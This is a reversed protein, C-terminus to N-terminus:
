RAHAGCTTGRRAATAPRAAGPRTGSFPDLHRAVDLVFELGPPRIPSRPVARSILRTATLPMPTTEGRPLPVASSNPLASAPRDPMWRSSIGTRTWAAPAAPRSPWTRRPRGSRHWWAACAPGSRGTRATRPLAPRPRSAPRAPRAQVAATGADEDAVAHATRQRHVAAVLREVAIGGVADLREGDQHAHLVCGRCPDADLVVQAARLM